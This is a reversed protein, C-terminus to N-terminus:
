ALIVYKFVLGFVLVMLLLLGVIRLATACRWSGQAERPPVGGGAAGATSPGAAAAPAEADRNWILSRVRPGFSGIDDRAADECSSVSSCSDSRAQLGTGGEQAPASGGAGEDARHHAAAPPAEAGAAQLSAEGVVESSRAAVEFSEAPQINRSLPHRGSLSAQTEGSMRPAVSESAAPAPAAAPAASSLDAAPPPEGPAPAM